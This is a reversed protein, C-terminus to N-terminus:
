LGAKWAAPDRARNRVGALSGPQVQFDDLVSLNKMALESNYYCQIPGNAALITSYMMLVRLQGSARKFRNWMYAAVVM